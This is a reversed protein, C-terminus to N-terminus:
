LAVRASDVQKSYVNHIRMDREKRTLTRITSAGPQRQNDSSPPVPLTDYPTAYPHLEEEPRSVFVSQSAPCHNTSQSYPSSRQTGDESSVYDLPPSNGIDKMQIVNHTTKGYIQTENEHHASRPERICLVCGVIIVVVVVFSSVTIPILIELDIIFYTTRVKPKKITERSLIERTRFDYMAETTGASNQVTILLEYWTAPSLTLLQFPPKAKFQLNDILTKWHSHFKKRLKITYFTILCGGDKWKSFDLTVETINVTIFDERAPSVPAAGATRINLKNSPESRGVTNHSTMFFQYTTGCQLNTQTYQEQDTAIPVVTWGSQENEQRYHLTYDVVNTGFTTRQSWQLTISSTSVSLYKLHPASPPVDDLTKVQVEDSRPGPGKSNFAHITIYYITSRKLNTLHFQEQATENKVHFTKYVYTNEDIPKYGIYYGSIKGNWQDDRPPKWVVKISNPGTAQVMVETPPGSPAEQQTKASLWESQSGWGVSNEATVSLLYSSAPELGSLVVERQSGGVTFNMTLDQQQGSLEKQYKILYRSIDSNGTYPETWLLSITRGTVNTVSINFPPGPAEQILLHIKVADEGYKNRTECLYTGSDNRSTQRIKLTSMHSSLPLESASILYRSSNTLTLGDKLWTFKIPQDGAVVCPIDVSQGKQVSHSRFKVNFIPPQNVTLNILKNLNTGYGNRAECVYYGEEDKSASHILLSGNPYLTHKHSNYIPTYDAPENSESKKWTIKPKPLGNASCDIRISRGLVVEMNQPEVIWSPPANVILLASNSATGAGNSVSCTYNGSNKPVLNTTSLISYDQFYQVSLGYSASLIVGDKLWTFHFPPDGLIVSCMIRIRMGVVADSPFQFPSIAPPEIVRLIVVHNRSRLRNDHYRCNYTGEDSNKTVEQILLSGNKLISQRANVPLAFSDKNWAVNQANRENVPCTLVITQSSVVTKTEEKTERRLRKLSSLSFPFLVETEVKLQFGCLFNLLKLAEDINWTLSASTLKLKTKNAKSIHLFQRLVDLEHSVLPELGEINRRCISPTEIHDYNDSFTRLPQGRTDKTSLFGIFAIIWLFSTILM